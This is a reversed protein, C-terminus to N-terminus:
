SERRVGVMGLGNGVRALKIQLIFYIDFGGIRFCFEM